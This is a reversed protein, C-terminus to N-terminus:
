LSNILSKNNSVNDTTLGFVRDQINHNTLIELLIGSLNASTHTGKLPKFRLLVEQYSWDINIFYSTIAM